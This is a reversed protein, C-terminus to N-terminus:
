QPPPHYHSPLHIKTGLQCGNKHPHGYEEMYEALPLYPTDELAEVSVGVDREVKQKLPNKLCMKAGEFADPLGVRWWAFGPVVRRGQWCGGEGVRVAEPRPSGRGYEVTRPCM